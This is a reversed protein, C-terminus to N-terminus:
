KKLPLERGDARSREEALEKAILDAWAEFGEVGHLRRVISAARDLDDQTYPQAKTM